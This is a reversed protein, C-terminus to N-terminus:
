RDCFQEITILNLTHALADVIATVAGRPAKTDMALREQRSLSTQQINTTMIKLNQVIAPINGRITPMGDFPHGIPIDIHANFSVFNACLGSCGPRAPPDVM